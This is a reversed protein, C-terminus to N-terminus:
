TSSVVGLGALTDFSNRPLKSAGRTGGQEGASYHSVHGCRSNRASCSVHSHPPRPAIVRCCRREVHGVRAVRDGLVPHRERAMEVVFGSLPQATLPSCVKSALHPGCLLDQDAQVGCQCRECACWSRSLVGSWSVSFWCGALPLGIYFAPVGVACLCRLIIMPATLHPM